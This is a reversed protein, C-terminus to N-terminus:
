NINSKESNAVPWNVKFIHVNRFMRNKKDYICIEVILLILVIWAFFQFREDYDSYSVGDIEKKRMKDLQGQLAKLASNSNDAHAYLGKGAEAIAKCTTEDLKSMVVNGQNDRKYDNSGSSTPIPSGETSGIGIVNVRIGTDKARKAVDIADGELNEGDTILVMAKGVEKDSSFCSIGMDIASGIATGQVPVLSPDISELFLKASEVDTTLPLQVFAEGAFVVIAVKDDNRADIIKSLMQKAKLLRSPSVDRALMSNSVDVAIVIEIGKKDVKDAKSGFQPRAVMIIGIGLTALIVWFKLYSRKLSMEPMMQKILRLDGLRKVSRIKRINLYIYLIVLAPLALFLYLYEPNGFRFM